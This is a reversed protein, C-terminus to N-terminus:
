SNKVEIGIQQMLKRLESKNKLNGYFLVDTNGEENFKKLCVRKLKPLFYLIYDLLKYCKSGDPTSQNLSWGLDEIDDRDLNKVTIGKLGNEANMGTLARDIFPLDNLNTVINKNWKSNRYDSTSKLTGDLFGDLADYEFGVHFEELNPTYFEKTEKKM